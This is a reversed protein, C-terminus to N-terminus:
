NWAGGYYQWQVGNVDVVINQLSPPTLLPPGAYNIYDPAALGPTNVIQALLALELLDAQDRYCSYCQAQNLLSQPDTAAMPNLVLLIQRLLGLKLLKPMDFCNYCNAANILSQPDTAPM